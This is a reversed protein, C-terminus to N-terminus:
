VNGAIRKANGERLLTYTLGPAAHFQSLPAEPYKGFKSGSNHTDPDAEMDESLKRAIESNNGM